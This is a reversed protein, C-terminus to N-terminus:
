LLELARDFRDALVLFPEDWGNAMAIEQISATPAFLAALKLANEFRGQSHLSAIESDIIGIVEQPMLPAWDSEESVALFLKTQELLELMQNYGAAM